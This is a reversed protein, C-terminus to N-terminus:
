FNRLWLFYHLIFFGTLFGRNKEDLDDFFRDYSEKEKETVDWLNDQSTISSNLTKNRIIPSQGPIPSGTSSAVHMAFFPPSKPSAPNSTVIGSAMEYFGSPLKTPLTKIIGKMTQHILHMAIIFEPLDLQGRGKTDAL